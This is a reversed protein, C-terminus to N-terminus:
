LGEIFDKIMDGINDNYSIRILTIKNDKCFQNKIEDNQENTPKRM